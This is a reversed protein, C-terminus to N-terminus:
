IVAKNICYKIKLINHHFNKGPKSDFWNYAMIGTHLSIYNSSTPKNLRSHNTDTVDWKILTFEFWVEDVFPDIESISVVYVHQDLTFEDKNECNIFWEIWRPVHNTHM